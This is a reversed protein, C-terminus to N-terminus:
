KGMRMSQLQESNFSRPSGAQGVPSEPGAWFELFEQRDGQSLYLTYKGPNGGISYQFGVAGNEPDPMLNLPGVQRNLSGGNDAEALIPRAADFGQFAVRIELIENPTVKLPEFEHDISRIELKSGDGRTIQATATTLSELMQPTLESSAGGQAVAESSETAKTTASRENQPTVDKGLLAKKGAPAPHRLLWLGLGVIALALLVMLTIRKIKM